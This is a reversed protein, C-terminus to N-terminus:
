RLGVPNPVYERQFDFIEKPRFGLIRSKPYSNQLFIMSESGTIAMSEFGGGLIRDFEESGTSIRFIAKETEFFLVTNLAASVSRSFDSRNPEIQVSWSFDRKSFNRANSLMNSALLSNTDM